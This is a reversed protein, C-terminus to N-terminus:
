LLSARSPRSMKKSLYEGWVILINILTLNKKATFVICISFLTLFIVVHTLTRPRM